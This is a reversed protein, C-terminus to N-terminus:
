GWNWAMASDALRADAYVDEDSRLSETAWCRTGGRAESPLVDWAIEGDDVGADAGADADADDRRFPMMGRAWSSVVIAVRM